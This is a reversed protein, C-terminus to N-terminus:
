GYILTGDKAYLKGSESYFNNNEKSIIFENLLVCNYFADKEIITVSAPIYISELYVCNHFAGNGIIEVGNKIVVNTANPSMGKIEKVQKGNIEGPIVVEAIAYDVSKIILGNEVEEYNLEKTEEMNEYKADVDEIEIDADIGITKEDKVINEQEENKEEVYTNREEDDIRQEVDKPYSTFLFVSIGLFIVIFFISALTVQLGLAKKKKKVKEGQFLYRELEEMSQIRLAIDTELGSSVAADLFTPVDKIISKLSIVKANGSAVALADPIKQGSIIRYMTACFSYVDSWTGQNGDTQYQELPAYGKKLVVTKKQNSTDVKRAAGFDILVMEGTNSMMINDPSIDRHIIGAKHVEKLALIVPHLLELTEQWGLKENNKQLYDKLTIGDIYDMVMYATNNEYFFNLVSVIGPLTAFQALRNAEKAYDELGKRYFESTEGGIVHIRYDIGSSISRSAFTAPFYEKIAVKLRLNLDIGRYTIGFGGEGIVDGLLYKGALITGPPLARENLQFDNTRKGCFPCVEKQVELAEMCHLCYIIARSQNNIMFTGRSFILDVLQGM